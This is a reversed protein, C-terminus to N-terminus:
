QPHATTYFESNYFYPSNCVINTESYNMRDSDYRVRLWTDTKRNGTFDSVKFSLSSLHLHLHSYDHM